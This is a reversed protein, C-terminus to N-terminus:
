RIVRRKRFPASLFRLAAKGGTLWVIRRFSGGRRGSRVDADVRGALWPAVTEVRDALIDYIRRTPADLTEEGALGGYSALLLDTVVMGPSLAGVAVPTGKTEAALARTFYDLGRKSAGYLAMSRVTRGDSGLGEMTYFYGGGQAIMAPIAISAAIMPGGLNAGLISAVDERGATWVPDRPLSLGANNIWADVRGFASKAGKWVSALGLPDTVECVFGRCRSQDNGKSAAELSAKSRGTFAVNWGLDLFARALGRGIGRTGGTIVITKADMTM